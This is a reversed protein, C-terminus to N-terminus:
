LGEEFRRQCDLVTKPHVGYLRALRAKPWLGLAALVGLIHRDQPTLRYTPNGM